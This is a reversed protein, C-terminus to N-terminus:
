TVAVNVIAPTVRAALTEMAKDLTLLPSVSSDDLAAAAPALAARANMPRLTEYGVLSALTALAMVSVAVRRGIVKRAKEIWNNM